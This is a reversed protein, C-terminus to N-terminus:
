MDNCHRYKWYKNLERADQGVTDWCCTGTRLYQGRLVHVYPGEFGAIESYQLFELATVGFGVKRMYDRLKSDDQETWDNM